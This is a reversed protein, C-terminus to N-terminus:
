PALVAHLQQVAAGADWGPFRLIGGFCTSPYSALRITSLGGPTRHAVQANWIHCVEMDKPLQLELDAEQLWPDVDAQMSMCVSGWWEPWAAWIHWNLTLDKAEGHYIVVLQQKIHCPIAVHAAPVAPAAPAVPPAPPAAPAAPAALVAPVAPAAKPLLELKLLRSHAAGEPQLFLLDEMSATTLTCLDGEDDRYKLCAGGGVEEPWAGRVHELIQDYTLPSRGTFRRYEGEHLVKLVIAM